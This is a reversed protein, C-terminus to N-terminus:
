ETQLILGTYKEALTAVQEMEDESLCEGLIGCISKINMISLGEGAIEIILSRKEPGIRAALWLVKMKDVNDMSSLLRDPVDDYSNEGIRSFCELIRETCEGDVKKATEGTEFASDNWGAFWDEELMDDIGQRDTKQDHLGGMNQHQAGDINQNQLGDM